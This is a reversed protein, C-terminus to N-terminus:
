WRQVLTQNFLHRQFPGSLTLMSMTIHSSMSDESFTGGVVSTLNMAMSLGLSKDQELTNLLHPSPTIEPLDSTPTGMVSGHNRCFDTSDQAELEPSFDGEMTNETNSEEPPLILAHQDNSHASDDSEISDDQSDFQFPIQEEPDLCDDPDSSQSDLSQDSDSKSSSSLAM